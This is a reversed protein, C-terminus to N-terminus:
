DQVDHMQLGYPPEQKDRVLDYVEKKLQSSSEKVVRQPTTFIQCPSNPRAHQDANVSASRRSRDQSPCIAAAASTVVPPTSLSSGMQNAPLDARVVGLLPGRGPAGSDVFYPRCDM